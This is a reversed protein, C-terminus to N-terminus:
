EVDLVADQYDSLLGAVLGRESVSTALGYVKAKGSAKAREAAPLARLEALAAELDEVMGPVAAKHQQTFVFHLAPPKILTNFHWGRKLLLEQLQLLPLTSLAPHTEPRDIYGPM